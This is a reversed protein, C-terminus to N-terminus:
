SQGLLRGALDRRSRVGVKDFVARLHDQVTYRSIHLTDVITETSVGRLVLRAVDSERRTLGHAALLLPVTDSPRAPALVVSIRREGSPGSLWSAHATLWSGTATRLRVSPAPPPGPGERDAGRLAGAVAQVPLPLRSRTRGGGPLLALLQEAEPTSSLVELGESLVVVGPAVDATGAPSAPRLAAGRLGRAIRPGLRAVLDVEAPAFGSRADERHLCLYGWCRGDAVLAARLEDGLGLPRMIERYRSSAWRDCGTAGDLSAVPVASTALASFRNVDAGDLENRLFSGAATALPAESWAGTFLLTGPDATAFFAADVTMLRRLSRLVQQHLAAADPAEDCARLLAREAQQRGDPTPV